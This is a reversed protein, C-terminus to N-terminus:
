AGEPLQGYADLRMRFWDACDVPTPYVYTETDYPQYGEGTALLDIKAVRENEIQVDMIALDTLYKHPERPDYDKHMWCALADDLADNGVYEWGSDHMYTDIEDIFKKLITSDDM